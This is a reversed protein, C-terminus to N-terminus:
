QEKTTIDFKRDVEDKLATIDQLSTDPMLRDLQYFDRSPADFINVILDGYDVLVWAGERLGEVHLPERGFASLRDVVEDSLSSVHSASRGTANVYMDTVSSSASVDYLRIDRGKKELLVRVAEDAARATTENVAQTNTM